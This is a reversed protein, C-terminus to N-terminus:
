MLPNAVYADLGAELAARARSDVLGEHPLGVIEGNVLRGVGIVLWRGHLHQRLLEVRGGELLDAGFTESGATCTVRCISASM